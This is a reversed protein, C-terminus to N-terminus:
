RVVKRPEPVAAGYYASLATLPERAKSIAQLAQDQAFVRARLDQAQRVSVLLREFIPATADRGEGAELQTRLQRSESEILRLLDLLHHRARAEGSAINPTPEKRFATRVGKVDEALEQSLATAAAQDWEKTPPAPTAAAERASEAVPEQTSACGVGLALGVLITILRRPAGTEFMGERRLKSEQPASYVRVKQAITAPFLAAVWGRYGPSM